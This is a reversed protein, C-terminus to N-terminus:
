DTLTSSLAELAKQHLHENGSALLSVSKELGVPTKEISRGNMDTVIGGAEHVLLYGSAFDFSRSPAPNIFVSLAGSAILSMDLAISGLCRCRRFLSLVPIIVPLDHSPSRAEFAAIRLSGDAQANVRMGSRFAGKGKEAWYEEGSVLNIVYGAKLSELTDGEVVAISASFVPLGSIANKSGDVPDVLLCPGGGRFEKLGFEESLLSVPEQWKEAEEFVIDEAKKDIPYTMDGAAGKVLPDKLEPNGFLPFIERHLRKGISRLKEINM